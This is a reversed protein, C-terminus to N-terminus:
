LEYDLMENIRVWTLLKTVERGGNKSIVNMKKSVKEGPPAKLRTIDSGPCFNIVCHNTPALLHLSSSQKVNESKLITSSYM